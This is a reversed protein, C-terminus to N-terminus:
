LRPKARGKQRYALTHPLSEPYLTQKGPDMMVSSHPCDPNLAGLGPLLPDTHGCFDEPTHRPLTLTRHPRVPSGSLLVCFSGPHVPAHLCGLCQTGDSFVDTFCRLRASSWLLVKHVHTWINGVCRSRPERPSSQMQHLRWPSEPGPPFMRLRRSSVTFQSACLHVLRWARLSHTLFPFGGGPFVLRLGVQRNVHM